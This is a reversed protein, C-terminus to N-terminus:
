CFGSLNNDYYFAVGGFIPKIKFVLIVKHTDTNMQCEFCASSKGGPSVQTFSSHEHAPQPKRVFRVCEKLSLLLWEEMRCRLATLMEATARTTQQM